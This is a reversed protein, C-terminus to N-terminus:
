KDERPKSKSLNVSYHPSNDSKRDSEPIEWLTLYKDEQITLPLIAEDLKISLYQKGDETFKYWAAGIKM